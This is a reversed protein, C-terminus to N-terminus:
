PRAIPEPNWVFGDAQRRFTGLGPFPFHAGYTRLSQTAGRGLLALRTAVAADSDYDWQNVFEPREVSIM